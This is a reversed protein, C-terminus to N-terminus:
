TTKIHNWYKGNGVCNITSRHVNYKKAFYSSNTKEDKSGIIYNNKIDIVSEENLKSAYVRMGKPPNERGKLYMDKMNEKQSGLFLHDPNVCSPNDCKHCVNIGKPIEGRHIEWSYRNARKPKGNINIQGYGYFVKSGIWNWCTVTKEVYKWFREEDTFKKPTPKRWCGCSKVFGNTLYSGQCIRKNGCECLCIWQYKGKYIHIRDIVKLKFFTQGMLYKQGM